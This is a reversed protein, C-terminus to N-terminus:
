LETPTIARREDNFCRLVAIGRELASVTDPARAEAVPPPATTALDNM